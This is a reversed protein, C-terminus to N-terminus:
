LGEFPFVDNILKKRTLSRGSVQRTCSLQLLLLAQKMDDLQLYDYTDM